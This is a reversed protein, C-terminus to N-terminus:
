TVSSGHAFNWGYNVTSIAPRRESRVSVCLAGAFLDADKHMHSQIMM